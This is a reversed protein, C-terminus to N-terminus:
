SSPLLVAFIGRWGGGRGSSGVNREPYVGWFCGARDGGGDGGPAAAKGGGGGVWHSTYLRRHICDKGGRAGPAGGPASERRGWGCLAAGGGGEEREAIPGSGGWGGARRQGAARKGRGLACGSGLASLGSGAAAFSRFVAALAEAFAANRWLGLAALSRMRAPGRCFGSGRALSGALATLLRTMLRGESGLLEPQGVCAALWGVGVAAVTGAAACLGGWLPARLPAPRPQESQVPQQNKNAANWCGGCRCLCAACPQRLPLAWCWRRQWPSVSWLESM